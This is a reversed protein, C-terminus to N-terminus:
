RGGQPHEGPDAPPEDPDRVPHLTGTPRGDAADTPETSESQETRDDQESKGDQENKGHHEAPSHHEAPGDTIAPRLATMPDQQPPDQGPPDTGAPTSSERYAPIIRQEGTHGAWTGTGDTGQRARDRIDRLLAARASLEGDDAPAGTATPAGHGPLDLWHDRGARRGWGFETATLPDVREDTGDPHEGPEPSGTVSGDDPSGARGSDSGPVEQPGTSVPPLDQAADHEPWSAAFPTVPNEQPVPPFWGTGEPRLGGTRDDPRDPGVGADPAAATDPEASGDPSVAGDRPEPRDTPSPVIQPAWLAQPERIDGPVAPKRPDLPNQRDLPGPPDAPTPGVQGRDEQRWTGLSPGSEYGGDSEDTPMLHRRARRRESTSTSSASISGTSVSGTDRGYAARRSRTHRLEEAARRSEPHRHSAGADDPPPENTLGAFGRLSGAAPVGRGPYEQAPRGDQFGTGAPPNQHTDARATYVGPAVTLPLLAPDDHLDPVDGFFSNGRRRPLASQEPDIGGAGTGATTQKGKPEAFLDAEPEGVKATPEKPPEVGVPTQQAPQQHPPPPAAVTRAPRVPVALEPITGALLSVSPLLSRVSRILTSRNLRSRNMGRLAEAGRQDVAMTGLVPVGVGSAHLLQETRGAVARDREPAILVVGIQARGAFRGPVASNLFRLRERLHALEELEPRAVVIVADAQHLVPMTAAAPGARGCDAYVTRGAESLARALPSWLPGLGIAQEPGSVGLLLELGGGTVQLHDELRVPGDVPEPESGERAPLPWRNGSQERRLANALSLVGLDTDLPAGDPRRYRLALDGGDPDLDAAAAGPTLAALAVTLSTVGPAGKASVLVVLAM